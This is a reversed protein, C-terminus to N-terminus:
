AAKAFIHLSEYGSNIGSLTVVDGASLKIPPIYTTTLYSGMRVLNTGNIQITDGASAQSFLGCLYCEGTATYTLASPTFSHLPTGFNLTPMDSVGGGLEYFSGDIVFGYKGNQYGAAFHKNNATLDANIEDIVTQVDEARWKSVDFPEAATVATICVYRQGNYTVVDGVAYIGHTADYPDAIGVSDFKGVVQTNLANLATNILVLSENITAITSTHGSVIGSLTAVDTSLTAVSEQLATLITETSSSGDWLTKMKTDLDLFAANTDIWDRHDSGVTQPLNLFPTGNQYSM